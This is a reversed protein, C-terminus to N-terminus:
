AELVAFGRGSRIEELGHCCDGGPYRYIGAHERGVLPQMGVLRAEYGGNGIIRLPYGESRLFRVPNASLGALMRDLDPKKWNTARM